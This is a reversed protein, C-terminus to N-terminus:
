QVQLDKFASLAPQLVKLPWQLHIVVRGHQWELACNKDVSIVGMFYVQFFLGQLRFLRVGPEQGDRQSLPSRIREPDAPTVSKGTWKGGIHM